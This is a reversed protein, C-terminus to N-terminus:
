CDLPSRLILHFAQPHILTLPYRDSFRHVRSCLQSNIRGEFDTMRSGEESRSTNRLNRDLMTGVTSNSAVVESQPGDVDAWHEVLVLPMGSEDEQLIM